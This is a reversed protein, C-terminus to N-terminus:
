YDQITQRDGECTQKNKKGTSYLKKNRKEKRNRQRAVINGTQGRSSRIGISQTGKNRRGMKPSVPLSSLNPTLPIGKGWSLFVECFIKEQLLDKYHVINWICEVILVRRKRCLLSPIKRLNKKHPSGNTNRSTFGVSSQPGWLLNESNPQNWHWRWFKMLIIM